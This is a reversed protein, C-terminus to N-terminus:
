RNKKKLEELRKREELIMNLMNVRISAELEKLKSLQQELADIEDTQTAERYKKIGLHELLDSSAETVKNSSQEVNLFRQPRSQKLKSIEEQLGSIQAQVLRMSEELKQYDDKFVANDEKYKTAEEDLAESLLPTPTNEEGKKSSDTVQLKSADDRSSLHTMPQITPEFARTPQIKM